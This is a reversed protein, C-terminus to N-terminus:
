GAPDNEAGGIIGIVGHQVQAEPTAGRAIQFGHPCPQVWGDPHEPRALLHAGPFVAGSVKLPHALLHAAPRHQPVVIGDVIARAHRGKQEDPRHGTTRRRDPGTQRGVRDIRGELRNQRANGQQAQEFAILHTLVILIQGGEVPRGLSNQPFSQGRIDLPV